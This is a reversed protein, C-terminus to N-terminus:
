YIIKEEIWFQVMLMSGNKHVLKRPICAFARHVAERRLYLGAWGRRGGRSGLFIILRCLAAHHSSSLLKLKIGDTNLFLDIM